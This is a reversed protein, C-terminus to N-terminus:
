PARRARFIFRTALFNVPVMMGVVAIGAWQPSMGFGATLASLLGESVALSTLYYGANMLSTDLRPATGFVLRPYAWSTFVIGLVFALAWALWAPM